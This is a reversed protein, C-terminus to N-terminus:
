KSEALPKMTDLGDWVFAKLECGAVATVWGGFEVSEGKSFRAKMCIKDIMAGDKYVAIVIVDKSDRETLKTVSVESYFSGSEPVEGILSNIVYDYTKIAEEEVTIRGNVVEVDLENYSQDCPKDAEDYTFTVPIEGVAGDKVKFKVTFAVGTGTVNYPNVWYASVNDFRGMDGGQHINSTLTGVSLAEGQTISVPELKTKDFEIKVSFGAVGSTETIYVPVDIVNGAKGNVNGVEFKISGTGMLDAESLEIDWSALYQSLKVGDKTNVAGDKRIDAAKMEYSTLTMDWSALYQSLRVGDKTNVVGDCKVDGIVINEVVIKGNTINLKVDNYEQDSVDGDKYSVSVPIECDSVDDKIKFKVNLINGNETVNAPNVWYATVVDYSTMDGGQHLNSTLTGQTFASGKEITVPVLKSKDFEITISFGAIGPNNAISVPVVVEEGGRGTINGVTIDASKAAEIEKSKYRYLTQIEIERNEANEPMSSSWMSWEGEVTEETAERTKYKYTYTEFPSSEFWYYWGNVCKVGSQTGGYPQKGGLDESPSGVAGLKTTSKYTHKNYSTECWISDITTGCWHHYNYYKTTSTITLTDSEEPKTSSSKESSWEGYTVNVSNDRYRYQTKEEIIYDEETVGDPLVNKWESFVDNESEFVKVNVFGFVGNSATAYVKMEGVAKAEILGNEDVTAITDDSGSYVVSKDLVDEPYVTASIQRKGGVVMEIDEADIRVESVEKPTWKPYLTQNEELEFVTDEYVEEGSDTVWCVFDYGAMRPIPLEGYAEGKVVSKSTVDVDDANFTVTFKKVPTSFNPRIVGYFVMGSGNYSYTTQHVKQNATGAEAGFVDAVTLTSGNASIVVGVHGETGGGYGVTWVAIDGPSPIFGIYDKIRKFGSPLANTAYDCANGGVRAVGLYDYYEMIFDVCQAGYVGDVDKAANNIRGKAWSVADAQTPRAFDPRIIGYFVMGSGNYPYTTQHVKQNATGAESSFVDAVTVTYGDASTVVGIHGYEGGGYGVTWVAIDGPNPIFGIYDKIRKFGSPLANTAYDCANGGVRSVGLYEYYEMIFDVSQAGYVGDVDKAANNIRSKVWNVAEGQTKNTGFLEMDEDAAKPIVAMGLVMVLCLVVATIRKKM